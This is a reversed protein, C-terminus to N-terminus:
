ARSRRWEHITWALAGAVCLWPYLWGVRAFFTPREATNRPLPIEPVIHEAPWQEVNELTVPRAPILEVVRGNSDVYVSVGTSVSRILPIRHEVSRFQALAMHEWPEATYGYWADITVNVFLEIGGELAVVRNVFDPLIDEYCILPGVRLPEEEGPIGVVFRKPAEGAHRHSVVPVLRNLLYPDVLPIYEGFPVRIVKDYFAHVRGEVDMAYLTNYGFPDDPDSSNAGFLTPLRHELLVRSRRSRSDREFPRLVRFPYTGAEPWVVVQAGAAQARRSSGRLRDMSEDPDRFGIPTNPQVIGVKVRRADRAEADISRMRLAGAAFVLVPVLGVASGFALRRRWGRARIAVAGARGVVIVLMEVFHIGGIEAAQMWEPTEAFGIVVTYPFLAPWLYQAATFVLVPVVWPQWGALPLRAVAVATLVFPVAMWASFLVLGALALAWPIGTFNVLMEAIWPFGILGSFIGAAFGALAAQRASLGTGELALFFPIFGLWMPPQFGDPPVGTGLLFCTCAALAVKAALPWSALPSSGPDPM